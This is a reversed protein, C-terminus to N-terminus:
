VCGHNGLKAKINNERPDENITYVNLENGEEKRGRRRQGGELM